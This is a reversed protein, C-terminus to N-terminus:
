KGKLPTIENLMYIRHSATEGIQAFGLRRIFADPEGLALKTTLFGMEDLIPQLFKRLRRATIYGKGRYQKFAAFHVEAGKRILTAMHVGNEAYPIPSWGELYDFADRYTLGEDQMLHEFWPMMPNM